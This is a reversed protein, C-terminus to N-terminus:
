GTPFREFVPLEHPAGASRRCDTCHCLAHTMAEGDIRYRGAGCHCGGEIIM